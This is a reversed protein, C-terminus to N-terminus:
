TWPEPDEYRPTARWHYKAFDPSYPRLIYSRMGLSSTTCQFRTARKGRPLSAVIGQRLQILLVASDMTRVRRESRHLIYGKPASGLVDFQGSISWQKIRKALFRFTAPSSSEGQRTVLRSADSFLSLLSYAEFAMTLCRTNLGLPTRQGEYCSSVAIWDKGTAEVGSAHVTRGACIMCTVLQHSGSRAPAAATGCIAGTGM